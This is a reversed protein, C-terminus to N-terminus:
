KFGDLTVLNASNEAIQASKEFVVFTAGDYNEPKKCRRRPM